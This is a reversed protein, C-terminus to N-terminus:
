RGMVGLVLITAVLLQGIVVLTLWGRIARKELVQQWLLEEVSSDENTYLTPALTYRWRHAVDALSPVYGDQNVEDREDDGTTM